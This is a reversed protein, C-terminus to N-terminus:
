RVIGSPVYCFYVKHRYTHDRIIHLNNPTSLYPGPLRGTLSILLKIVKIVADNRKRCLSTKKICYIFSIM